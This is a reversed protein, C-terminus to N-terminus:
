THISSPVGYPRVQRDGKILTSLMRAQAQLHGLISDLQNQMRHQMRLMREQNDLMRDLKLADREKNERFFEDQLIGHAAVGAPWHSERVAPNAELLKALLAALVGHGQDVGGLALKRNLTPRDWAALLQLDDQLVDDNVDTNWLPVACAMNYLVM